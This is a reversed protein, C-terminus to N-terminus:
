DADAPMDEYEFEWGEDGDMNLRVRLNVLQCFSWNDLSRPDFDRAVNEDHLTKEAWTQVPPGKLRRFSRTRPGLSADVTARQNREFEPLLPGLPDFHAHADPRFLGTSPYAPGQVAGIVPNRHLVLSNSSLYRHRSYEAISSDSPTPVSLPSSSCSSTAPPEPEPHPIFPKPRRVRRNTGPITIFHSDLEDRHDVSFFFVRGTADGVVLKTHNPSFVGCTIPGPAELLNRVFPSRKRRVNWVKVVGDSSGTYFRDPTAGWATFKVGEDERERDFIVPGLPEGHKLIHIPLDGQATDWIYVRGDTCAASIYSHRLSNPMITLENIDSGYCDLKQFESYAGDKRERDLQFIHVHTRVGQEVILGSPSTAVVFVPLSPHWVLEFVNATTVTLVPVQCRREADWLVIEGSHAKDEPINADDGSFSRPSYGIALLHHTGPTRGWQMTAPCYAWKDSGDADTRTCSITYYGSEQVNSPDVTYVRIAQSPVDAATAVRGSGDKAAVVFNVNGQHHWTATAKMCTGDEDVSWVKVTKDFSSTFARGNKDDYDTSVVSSYLWPDQSQRMAETSNEGKEVIPRPIRHDPFARLTGKTTSCLLLNGPKNYQQNHADSHATTGCVINGDPVWSMASIDGACNTFEAVLSLGDEHYTQFGSQFNEYRRMRGFGINGELERALILAPLHNARRNRARREPSAEELSLVRLDDPHSAKGASLDSCLNYVDYKTRGSVSNGVIQPVDLHRLSQVLGERTWPIPKSLHQGVLKMIEAIELSSFDAHYVAPFQVKDRAVHVRHKVGQAIDQRASHQLYPRRRLQLWKSPTPLSHSTKPAVYRPRTRPRPVPTPGTCSNSAPQAFELPQIVKHRSLLTPNPAERAPLIAAEKTSRPELVQYEPLSALQQVVKTALGEIHATDEAALLGNSLQVREPFNTSRLLSTVAQIAISDVLYVDSSLEDVAKQVHPLLHERVCTKLDGAAPSDSALRRKKAPPQESTLQLSQTPGAHNCPPPLPGFTTPTDITLDIVVPPATATLAVSM